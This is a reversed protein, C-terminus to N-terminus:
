TVPLPPASYLRKRWWMDMACRVGIATSAVLVSMYRTAETVLGSAVLAGAIVLGAVLVAPSLARTLREIALGIVVAAIWGVLPRTEVGILVPLWYAIAVGIVVAAFAVSRTRVVGM